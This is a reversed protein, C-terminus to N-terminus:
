ANSEGKPPQNLKLLKNCTREVNMLHINLDTLFNREEGTPTAMIMREVHTQFRMAEERIFEIRVTNTTKM